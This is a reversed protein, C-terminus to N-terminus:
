LDPDQTVSHHATHRDHHAERRDGEQPSSVHTHVLARHMRRHSAVRNAPRAAAAAAHRTAHASTREVDLRERVIRFAQQDAKGRLRLARGEEAVRGAIGDGVPVSIKKWLEPEIGVAVRVRLEHREADLLMLSGGEAGTVGPVCVGDVCGMPVGAKANCTGNSYCECGENGTTGDCAAVGGGCVGASCTLGADCTGADTCPCGAQGASCTGDPGGTDSPCAWLGMTALSWWAAWVGVRLKAM